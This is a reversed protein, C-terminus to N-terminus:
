DSLHHWAGNKNARIFQKNIQPLALRPLAQAPAAKTLANYFGLEGRLWIGVENGKAIEDKGATEQAFIVPDIYIVLEYNGTVGKVESRHGSNLGGNQVMYSNDVFVVSVKAFKAINIHNKVTNREFGRLFDAAPVESDSLSSKNVISHSADGLNKLAATGAPKSAQTPSWGKYTAVTANGTITKGEHAVTIPLSQSTGAAAGDVTWSYSVSPTGFVNTFTPQMSISTAPNTIEAQGSLELKFEPAPVNGDGNAAFVQQDPGPAGFTMAVSLQKGVDSYVIDYTHSNASVTANNDAHSWTTTLPTENWTNGEGDKAFATLTGGLINVGTIAAQLDAPRGIAATKASTASGTNGSYTVVVTIEKGFQSAPIKFTQTTAGSIAQDGNKWQYSADGSKNTLGDTNATLTQNVKATGDIAVNGLLAQLEKVVASGGNGTITGNQDAYSVIAGIIYGIETDTLAFTQGNAGAIDTTAGDKSKTWKYTAAGTGNTNAVNITLTEGPKMAGSISVDGTLAQKGPKEPTTDNGTNCAALAMMIMVLAAILLSLGATRRTAPATKGAFVTGPVMPAVSLTGPVSNAPVAAMMVVSVARKM